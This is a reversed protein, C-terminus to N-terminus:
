GEARFWVMIYSVFFITDFMDMTTETGDIDLKHEGKALKRM